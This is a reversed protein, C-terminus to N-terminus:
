SKKYVEITKLAMIDWNFKKAQKQAKEKLEHQIKPSQMIREMAKTISEVSNPNILLAADGAIEQMSSNKSTIVPCGCAMAELIPIGFGEYFSPYVFCTASSYFFPLDEDPVYGTFRVENEINLKKVQAFIKEYLWGKKGVIVLKQNKNELAAFANILGPINKRPELMGVFLIYPQEVGYKKLISICIEKERPSFIEDVGLYIPEIKKESISFEKLIDLKTNESITIIKEAKKLSYPIVQKFYMKKLFTHYMAHSFFTMDAITVINKMKKIHIFPLAFGPAHYVDIKEKWLSFPLIVQEWFIKLIPNSFIGLVQKLKVNQLSTKSFKSINSINSYNFFHKNASSVYIIYENEPDNKPVRNVLEVIYKGM